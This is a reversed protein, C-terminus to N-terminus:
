TGFVTKESQEFTASRGGPDITMALLTLRSSTCAGVGGGMDRGCLFGDQELSTSLKQSCRWWSSHLLCDSDADVSRLVWRAEVMSIGDKVCVPARTWHLSSRRPWSLEVSLRIRM